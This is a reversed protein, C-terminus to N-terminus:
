YGCELVVKAAIKLLLFDTYSMWYVDRAVMLKKCVVQRVLGIMWDLGSCRSHLCDMRQDVLELIELDCRHSWYRLQLCPYPQKHDSCLNSHRM